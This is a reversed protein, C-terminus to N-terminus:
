SPALNNLKFLERKEYIFAFCIHRCCIQKNLFFFCDCTPYPDTPYVGLDQAVYQQRMSIEVEVNGKDQIKYVTPRSESNIVEVSEIHHVIENQRQWIKDVHDSWDGKSKILDVIDTFAFLQDREYM